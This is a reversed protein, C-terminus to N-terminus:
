IYKVIIENIKKARLRYSHNKHTKRRGKVSINIIEKPNNLFYKIKELAEEKSNYSIVEDDSFYNRLDDTYNTIMLCGSGTGEFLRMNGSYNDVDLHSNFCIKSRHLQMLYEKGYKPDKIKKKISNFKILRNLNLFNLLNIKYYIKSYISFNPLNKNLYYITNFRKLHFNENCIISGNFSLDISRDIDKFSNREDFAHDIKVTRKNLKLLSNLFGNNCTFVLDSNRIIEYQNKSFPSCVWCIILKVFPFKKKIDLFFKDNILFINQFYIITPKIKKIQEELIQFSNANLIKKESAWKKQLKAYNYYIVNVNYGIENLYFKYSYEQGRSFEIFKNTHEDFNLESSNKITNEFNMILENYVSSYYLIKINM